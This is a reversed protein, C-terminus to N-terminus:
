TAEENKPISEAWIDYVHAMPPTDFIDPVEFVKGLNKAFVPGRTKALIVGSQRTLVEVAHDAQSRAKRQFYWIFDVFGMLANALSPSLEPRVEIIREGTDDTQKRVLATYIVHKDIGTLTRLATGMDNLLAGYDQRPDRANSKRQIDALWVRQLETVSDIIITNQEYKGKALDSVLRQFEGISAPRITEVPELGMMPRDDISLGGGEIDIFLVDKMDPVDQASAAFVTKGVGQAGYLLMNLTRPRTM